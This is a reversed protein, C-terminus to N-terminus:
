DKEERFRVFSPHRLSGDETEEFFRVEITKGIFDDPTAAMKERTALDFGTGVRVSNGNLDVVVGGALGTFKGEGAYIEKIELDVTEFKKLKLMEGSKLTVRKWQYSGNMNKLMVGEYGKQLYYKFHELVDGPGECIDTPTDIIKDYESINDNVLERLRSLRTEYTPTKKQEEWYDERVCDYVFFKLGKPLAADEANLVRTLKNFPLGHAYLEGDLVYNGVRALGEFYKELNKNKFPKGARSWLKGGKYVCRYGDLKPQLACPYKVETVNAIKNPALMLKFEPVLKPWVKNVTKTGVGIASKSIIKAFLPAHDASCEELFSKVEDRAENGVIERQSLKDCLKFFKKFSTIGSLNPNYSPIKNLHYLKYPDLAYKLLKKVNEDDVYISLMDQKSKVSNTNELDEFLKNIM